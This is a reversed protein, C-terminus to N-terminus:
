VVVDKRYSFLAMGFKLVTNEHPIKKIAQVSYWISITANKPAKLVDRSLEVSM